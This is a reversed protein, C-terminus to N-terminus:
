MVARALELGSVFASEVDDGRCWDGCAGIRNREDWLFGEGLPNEPRAYRWRHATRFLVAPLPAGIATECAKLLAGTVIEPTEELHSSTWEPTAHIVWTEATEPRGPKRRNCIMKEIGDADAGAVHWEFPVTKEFATMVTWCPRMEVNAAIEAMQPADQLLRAAQAPPIAVIAVDYGAAGGGNDAQLHWSGGSREAAVIRSSSVVSIDRALFQPFSAMSPIGVYSGAVSTTSPGAPGITTADFYWHDAAQEQVAAEVVARFRPDAATFYPAGHDFQFRDHYRTSVRGGPVRGKDFVTVDAGRRVLERAASLGAIGAGVVAIKIKKNM